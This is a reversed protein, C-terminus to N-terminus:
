TESARGDVAKFEHGVRKRPKWTGARMMWETVRSVRLVATEAANSSLVSVAPNWQGRILGVGGHDSATM